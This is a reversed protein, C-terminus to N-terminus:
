LVSPVDVLVRHHKAVLASVSFHAEAHKRAENGMRVRMQNDSLLDIVAKSIAPSDKVPILIGTVSEIVAERCGPVDSVVSPVGVASAEMVSRPFGERYSPLVFIDCTDLLCKVNEVHGFFRVEPYKGCDSRSFSTPNTPDIDGAVIFETKPFKGKVIKAAECFEVLGKDRLLRSIMVVRANSSDLNVQEHTKQAFVELDVGAGPVVFIKNRSIGVNELLFSKDDENEVIVNSNRFSFIFKYLLVIVAKALRKKMESGILMSGLGSVYFVIKQKYRALFCAFGGYIIMKITIFEIYDAEAERIIQALKLVTRFESVVNGFGRAVDLEIFNVGLDEIKKDAGTGASIVTVSYNLNVLYQVYNSFHSILFWDVNIFILIKKM